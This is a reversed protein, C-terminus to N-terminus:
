QSTWSMWVMWLVYSVLIVGLWNVRRLWSRWGSSTGKRRACGVVHLAVLTLRAEDRVVVYAPPLGGNEDLVAEERDVRWWGREPADSASTVDSENGNRLLFEGVISAGELGAADCPHGGFPAFAAALDFHTSVYVGDGFARGNSAGFRSARMSLGHALIAHWNEADSGHFVTREERGVEEEGDGELEIAFRRSFRHAVDRERFLSTQKADRLRPRPEQLAASLLARHPPKLQALFDRPNSLALALPPIQNLHDRLLHIHTERDSPNIYQEPIPRLTTPHRSSFAAAHFLFLRFQAAQFDRLIVSLLRAEDDGPRTGDFVPMRAPYGQLVPFLPQALAGAPRNTM